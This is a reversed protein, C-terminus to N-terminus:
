VGNCCGSRNGCSTAPTTMSRAPAPSLPTGMFASAGPKSAIVVVVSPPTKWKLKFEPLKVMWGVFRGLWGAEMATSPFLRILTSNRSRTASGKVGVTTAAGVATGSGVTVIVGVGMGMGVGVAVGVGVGKGVIPGGTMIGKNGEAVPVIAGGFGLGVGEAFLAAGCCTLRVGHTYAKKAPVQKATTTKLM